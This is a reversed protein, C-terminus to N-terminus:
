KRWAEGRILELRAALRAFAPGVAERGTLVNRVTNWFAASVRNYALGTPASPRAVATEFADRLEGYFPNAKLLEPDEYLAPMTPNYSARLSRRKQERASTLHRVLAIAAEKENSYRSVALQWGGLAGSQRGAEGPGKPLRAVGVKGRIASGDAQALSWAYPWNRMFVARGIQFVGRADEEAYSLVGRPAIEELWGKATVIAARARPNDVTIGGDDSVIAGGGFSAVWELANCTLGEYARAQFVYGWMDIGAAREARQVARATEELAAWTEPVPFGYKELLDKRYYLLGVDLFWPLAVLRGAVRNNAVIADFHSDIVDQPVHPALDIFHRGLVGPWVVDIQLVDIDPSRAALLQQYLALRQETQNPTSVITVAHGTSKEFAAVGQRCLALEQGVAGCSIALQAAPVSGSACVVVALGAILAAGSARM